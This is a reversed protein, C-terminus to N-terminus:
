VENGSVDVLRDLFERHVTETDTLFSKWTMRELRQMKELGQYATKMIGNKVAVSDAVLTIKWSSVNAEKLLKENGENDFFENFYEVYNHMREFDADDFQKRPKKIEIIRLPGAAQVLIFDPRKGPHATASLLVERELQQSLFKELAERARKLGRNSVIPTWEPRILWPASELMKQLDAEDVDQADVQARCQQIINIRQGAVAGLAQTEAFRAESLIGAVLGLGLVEANAAADRLKDSLELHPAFAVALQLIEGATESDEAEARKLKQSLTTALKKARDLIPKQKAQPFRRALENDLDVTEAFIESTRQQDPQRSIRGIQRILQQGWREFEAGADTSWLINQRDTHILDDDEDLWDCHLEGILYSKVQMEGHFGASRNFDNTKTAFKGRCYVRIGGFLDPKRIPDKAYAVWGQVPHFKGDVTFGPEIEDAAPGKTKYQTADATPLTPLPGTFQLKTGSLTAIKTPTVSTTVHPKVANNVLDVRFGSGDTLMGFRQAIQEALDEAPPVLRRLFKTLRITTGRKASLTGDLNGVEPYYPSDDDSLIKEYDLILHATEYGSKAGIKKQGGATIIEIRRCIGFPALKGVGKRGTVPRGSPSKAGRKPDARRDSGIILYQERVQDPSMGLGNDRVVVELGQDALGGNVRNALYQGAPVEVTVIGADADYSNSVLEAIVAAAKDYLRVGLKDITKRGIKLEYQAAKAM